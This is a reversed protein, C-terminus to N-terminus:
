GVINIDEEDKINPKDENNMTNRRTATHEKEGLIIQSHDNM